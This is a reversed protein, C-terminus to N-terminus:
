AHHKGKTPQSLTITDTPQTKRACAPFCELTVASCAAKDGIFLALTRLKEKMITESPRTPACFFLLPPVDDDDAFTAFTKIVDKWLLM